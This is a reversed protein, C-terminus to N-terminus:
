RLAAAFVKADAAVAARAAEPTPADLVRRVLASGVIVGDGHLAAARAHDPTTIGVGLVLPTDTVRRVRESLRAIRGGSEEREGTVGMEAVGYIFLPEAAAVREIREDTTTPAVFLVMGVGAENLADRIPISEELPLDAVIVGAAGAAASRKAFREPGVQFIVNSYTMILAPKGTSAVVGSAIDLGGALDTGARLARQGAEQITPGDMLPDSYPIGVEYGDASDMAEFIGVSSEPDPLGATMFPLFLARREARASAFLEELQRRSM